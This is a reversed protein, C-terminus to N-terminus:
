GILEWRLTVVQETGPARLHLILVDGGAPSQGQFLRRLPGLDFQLHKEIHARCHDGNADHTLTLHTQPPLSELFVGANVLGYAHEACGGGHHLTVSLVDGSVSADAIQAFDQPGGANSAIRVPVLGETPEAPAACGGLSAAAALTLAMLKRAHMKMQEIDNSTPTAGTRSFASRAVFTVAPGHARGRNLRARRDGEM